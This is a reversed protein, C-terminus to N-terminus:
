WNSRSVEFPMLVFIVGDVETPAAWPTCVKLDNPVDTSRLPLSQVAALEPPLDPLPDIRKRLEDYFKGPHATALCVKACCLRQVHLWVFLFRMLTPRLTLKRRWTVLFARHMGKSVMGENALNLKQAAIVGCASHPCYLYRRCLGHVVFSTVAEDILCVHCM